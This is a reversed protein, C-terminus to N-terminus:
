FKFEYTVSAKGTPTSKIKSILGNSGYEYYSKTTSEAKTTASVMQGKNNYNYTTIYRESVDNSICQVKILSGKANYTYKRIVGDPTMFELMNGQKDYKYRNILGFQTDKNEATSSGDPKYTYITTEKLKGDNGYINIMEPKGKANYQIDKYSSRVEKYYLATDYGAADYYYKMSTAGPGSGYTVTKSKIKKAKIEATTPDQAQTTIFLAFSILLLTSRLM